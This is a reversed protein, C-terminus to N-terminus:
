YKQASCTGPRVTRRQRRTTPASTLACPPMHEDLNRDGISVVQKGLLHRYTPSTDIVYWGDSFHSLQLPLMHFGTAPQFPFITSHGDQLSAVLRVMAMEVVAANGSSAAEQLQASADAFTDRTEHAFANPHARPVLEILHAADSEWASTKLASRWVIRQWHLWSVVVAGIAVATAAVVLGAIRLPVTRCRLLFGTFTVFTGAVGGPM